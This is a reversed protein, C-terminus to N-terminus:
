WIVRQDKESQAANMLVRMQYREIVRWWFELNELDRPFARSAVNEAENQM